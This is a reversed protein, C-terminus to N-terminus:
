VGNPRLRSLYKWFKALHTCVHARSIVGSWSFSGTNFLQGHVLNQCLWVVTGSGHENPNHLQAIYLTCYEFFPIGDM